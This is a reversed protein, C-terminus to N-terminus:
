RLVPAVAAALLYAGGVLWCYYAFWRFHQSRLMRVFLHIALIGAITAAVFGVVLAAGGVAGWAAEGGTAQLRAAGAIAPVSLLFSFEAM